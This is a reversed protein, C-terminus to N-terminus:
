FLGFGEDTAPASATKGHSLMEDLDLELKQKQGLGDTYYFFKNERIFKYIDTTIQVDSDCYEKLKDLKGERYFRIADLGHAIKGAGLTAEAINDLKLYIKHKRYIIEFLDCVNMKKTDVPFYADLVPFDFDIINYGIVLDANALIDKFKMVDQEFFGDVKDTDSRYFAMYSIGLERHNRDEVEDFIKKSEIDFVVYM